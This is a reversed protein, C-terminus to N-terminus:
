DMKIFSKTIVKEDYTIRVFYQGSILDQINIRVKKKDTENIRILLQGTSSIVDVTKFNLDSAEVHIVDKAPNPHIVVDKNKHAVTNLECPTSYIYGNIVRVLLDNLKEVEYEDHVPALHAGGIGSHDTIFTYTGNTLISTFKM